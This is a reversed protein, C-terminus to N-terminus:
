LRSHNKPHQLHTKIKSPSQRQQILSLLYQLNRLFQNLLKRTYFLKISYLYQEVTLGSVEVRNLIEDADDSIESLDDELVPPIEAKIKKAEIPSEIVEEAPRKPAVSGDRSTESEVAPPAAVVPAEAAVATAAPPPPQETRTPAPEKVPEKRRTDLNSDESISFINLIITCIRKLFAIVM